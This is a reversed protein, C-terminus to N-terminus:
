HRRVYDAIPHDQRLATTLLLRIKNQVLLYSARDRVGTEPGCYASLRFGFAARYFYAAQRANGVLFEVYDTGNLPLFCDPETNKPAAPAEMLQEMDIDEWM